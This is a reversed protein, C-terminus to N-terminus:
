SISQKWIWMALKIVSSVETNDLKHNVSIAQWNFLSTILTMTYDLHAVENEYSNMKKFGSGPGNQSAGEM